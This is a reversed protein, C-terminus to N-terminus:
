DTAVLVGCSEGSETVLAVSRGRGSALWGHWHKYAGSLHQYLQPGLMHLLAPRSQGFVTQLRCISELQAATRNYRELITFGCATLMAIFEDAPTLWVTDGDPISRQETPTLPEADEFTIALRGGPRLLRHIERILPAKERFAMQVELLLVADFGGALPVANADGLLYNTRGAMSLSHSAAVAFKLAYPSRDVGTLDCGLRAALYRGMGGMRCCLDLLSSGRSVGAARVLSMAEGAM